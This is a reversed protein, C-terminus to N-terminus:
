LRPAPAKRTQDSSLGSAGPDSGPDQSPAQSGNGPLPLPAPQPLFGVNGLALIPDPPPDAPFPAFGRSSVQGAPLLLLASLCLTLTM